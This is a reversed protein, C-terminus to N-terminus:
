RRRVIAMIAVAGILALAVYLLNFGPTSDEGGDKKAVNFNFDETTETGSPDKVSVTVKHPGSDVDKLDLTPGTGVEDLEDFFWTFTLTDSDLDTASATFSITEGHKYETKNAATTVKLDSPPANLNTIFVTWSTGNIFEGDIVELRVIVTRDKEATVAPIYEFNYRDSIQEPPVPEGDLYWNWVLDFADSDQDYFSYYVDQEFTVGENEQVTATDILNHVEPADPMDEVQIFVTLNESEARSNDIAWIVLNSWTGVYDLQGTITVVTGTITVTLSGNNDFDYTMDEEEIDHFYWGAVDDELDITVTTEEDMTIAEIYRIIEPPDNVPTMIFTYVIEATLGGKDTCTVTFTETGAWNAVLPTFSVVWSQDDMQVMIHEMTTTTFTWTSFDDDVDRFPMTVNVGSLVLDEFYTINDRVQDEDVYPGDNVPDVWIKATYNIMLGHPDTANLLITVDPSADAVPEITLKNDGGLQIDILTNNYSTLDLEYILDDGDKDGFIVTVDYDSDVSDEDLHYNKVWGDLGSNIEPRYNIWVELTYDVTPPNEWDPAEYVSEVVIYYFGADDPKWSNIRETDTGPKRSARKQNEFEDFIYLDAPGNIPTMVVWLPEGEELYIEYYDDRDFSLNVDGSEESNDTVPTAEGISNDNDNAYSLITMTLNYQSFGVQMWIRVIYDDEVTIVYDKLLGNGFKITDSTYVASPRLIGAPDYLEWQVTNAEDTELEITLYKNFESSPKIHLYFYDSPDWPLGANERHTQGQTLQVMDGPENNSDRDAIPPSVAVRDITMNIFTDGFGQGTNIYYIGPVVIGFQFNFNPDAPTGTYYYYYIPFFNPDTVWYEVTTNPDSQNVTVMVMDNTNLFRLELFDPDGGGDRRITLPV